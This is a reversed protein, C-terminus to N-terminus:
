FGATHIITFYILLGLVDNSTTIFPGTAIAPDIRIRKLFLPVLTGVFSAILLVTLLSFSLVTGFKLNNFMWTVAGLLLCAILFGNLLAVSLEQILRRGTDGLRIDGIALGRIVVTSCQIGINGGMAMILPIFFTAIILENDSPMFHELVKASLLEGVFAVLLWPLRVSSTKLISREGIEDDTIGAMKTFDESAEEEVVDLVDDVTIRGVLRGQEDVVPAAVLDYKHFLNAVEEQDTHALVSIPDTKMIKSLPAKPPATVVDKLSAMGVLVGDKDIVYINYVDDVEDAKRRLVDLAQSATRDKNVAVVELAMIGGATDEEHRMLRQVEHFAEAPLAMLVRHAIEEDLEGLLDAADDSDMTSIISVLRSEDLFELVSDLIHSDLNILTQATKEHPILELLRTRQEKDMEVMAEAIDAPHLDTLINKLMISSQQNLLDQLIQGTNKEETINDM